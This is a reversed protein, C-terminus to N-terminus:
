FNRIYADRGRGDPVMRYNKPNYTRSLNLWKDLM